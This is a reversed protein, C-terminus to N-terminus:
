ENTYKRAATVIHNLADILIRSFKLIGASIFGGVSTSALTIGDDINNGLFCFLTCFLCVCGVILAFYTFFNFVRSISKLEDM